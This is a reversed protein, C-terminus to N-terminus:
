FLDVSGHAEKPRHDIEEGIKFRDVVQIIKSSIDCIMDASEKTHDAAINADDILARVSGVQVVIDTSSTQSAEALQRVSGVMEIVSRSYSEINEMAREATQALAMSADMETVVQRMMETSRSSTMQIENTQLSISHTLASVREALKRVEDAVVAFGRGSEGARAAEIAANLALLNTQDTIERIEGIISSISGSAKALAFVQEAAMGVSGTLAQIRSVSNRITEGNEAAERGSRVAMQGAADISSTISEIRQQIQATDAHIETVAGNGHKAIQGLVVASQHMEISAVENRRVIEITEALAAQLTEVLFNFSRISHGIEDQRIVPVRLTFDLSETIQCMVKEMMRIPKLTSDYVWKGCAIILLLTLTVVVSFIVTNRTQASMMDAVARDHSRRKEIELTALTQQIESAYVTANSEFDAVALDAKRENKLTLSHDLAGTYEHFSSTLQDLLTQQVVGQAGRAMLELAASLASYDLGSQSCSRTDTAYILCGAVLQMSKIGSGFAALQTLAPVDKNLFSDLAEANQKSQSFVLGALGSIALLPVLSLLLLRFAISQIFQM